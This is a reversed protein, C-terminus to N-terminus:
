TFDFISERIIIPMINYTHCGPKERRKPFATGIEM